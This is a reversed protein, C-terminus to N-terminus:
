ELSEVYVDVRKKDKPEEFLAKIKDFNKDNYLISDIVNTIYLKREIENLNQFKSM